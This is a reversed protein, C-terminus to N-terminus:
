TREQGLLDPRKFKDDLFRGQSLMDQAEARYVRDMLQRLQQDIVGLQEALLKEATKGDRLVHYRRYLPPLKLYNALTEPLYRALTERLSHRDDESLALSDQKPLLALLRECVQELVAIVEAGAVGRLRAVIDALHRRAEDLSFSGSLAFNPARPRPAALAGIGYLGAVIALWGPGILGAFLLGVGGLGALSGWVNADSYLWLWLREGAAPAPTAPISAKM